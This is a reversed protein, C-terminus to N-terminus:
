VAGHFEKLTEEMDKRTIAGLMILIEGIRIHSKEQLELIADVEDQGLFGMEVAIEGFLGKGRLRQLDLVACLQRDNLFGEQVALVGIILHKQKQFDLALSLEYADIKGDYLLYEGFCLGAEKAGNDECIAVKGTFVDYSEIGNILEYDQRTECLAITM